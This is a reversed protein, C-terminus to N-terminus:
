VRFSGTASQYSALGHGSSLYCTVHTVGNEDQQAEHHGEGEEQHHSRGEYAARSLGESLRNVRKSARM